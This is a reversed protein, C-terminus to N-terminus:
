QAVQDDAHDFLAQLEDRTFAWKAADAESDAVHVASNVENLV